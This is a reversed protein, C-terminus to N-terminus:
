PSVILKLDNEHQIFSGASHAKILPHPLLPLSPFPPPSPVEISIQFTDPPFYSFGITAKSQYEGATLSFIKRYGGGGPIKEINGHM